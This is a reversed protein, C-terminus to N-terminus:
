IERVKSPESFLINQKNVQEVDGNFFAALLRLTEKQEEDFHVGYAPLSQDIAGKDMARAIIRQLSQLAYYASQITAENGM